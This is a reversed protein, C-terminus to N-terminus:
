VPKGNRAHIQKDITIRVSRAVRPRAMEETVSAMVAKNFIEKAKEYKKKRMRRYGEATPIASNKNVHLGGQLCTLRM